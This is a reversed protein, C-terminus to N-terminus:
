TEHAAQNQHNPQDRASQAPWRSRCHDPNPRSGSPFLRRLLLAEFDRASRSPTKEPVWGSEVRDSAITEANKELIHTRGDERWSCYHAVALELDGEVEPLAFVPKSRM